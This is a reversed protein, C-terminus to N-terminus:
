DECVCVCVMMMMMIQIHITYTYIFPSKGNRDPVMVSIVTAGYNTIKVSLDGKRLEYVGIEESMNGVAFAIIMVFVSLCLWAKVM